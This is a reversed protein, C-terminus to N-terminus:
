FQQQPILRIHSKILTYKIEPSKRKISNLRKNTKKWTIEVFLTLYFTTVHHFIGSFVHRGHLEM